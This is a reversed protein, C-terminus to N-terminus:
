ALQGDNMERVVAFTRALRESHTVVILAAGESRPLEALLEGVAEASRRDLNGTPEDALVVAPRRMLARALAVRQREGGSLESPLHDIRAILGVQKLLERARPLNRDGKGDSETLTPLLVNELVSCQPLLHHDQFVFGIRRNRLSALKPEPLKFPDVGDITLRGSTPPELTGLISLLTSKGSGSPGMIALTEGCRMALSVGRLVALDGSRTAYSKAIADALLLPKPPPSAATPAPTAAM